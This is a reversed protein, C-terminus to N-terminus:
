ACRSLFGQASPRKAVLVPQNESSTISPTGSTPLVALTSM